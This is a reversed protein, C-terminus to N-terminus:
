ASASHRSVLYLDDRGALDVTLDETTGDAFYAQEPDGSLNAFPRVVISPESPLGATTDAPPADRLQALGLAAAVIGLGPLVRGLPSVRPRSGAAEADSAVEVAPLEEGTGIFRYGRGHMTQILAPESRSDGLVKRLANVKSALVSETVAEGPWLQELLEQKTVV